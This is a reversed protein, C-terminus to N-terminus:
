CYLSPHIPRATRSGHCGMRVTASSVCLEHVALPTKKLLTLVALLAKSVLEAGDEVLRKSDRSIAGELSGFVSALEALLDAEEVLLVLVRGHADGDQM